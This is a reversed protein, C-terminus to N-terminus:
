AIERQYYFLKNKERIADESLLEKIIAYYPDFQSPKNRTTKKEFGNLYRAVTKRSVGLEKALQSKNVMISGIEILSKLKSLDDMDKIEIDCNIRYHPLM